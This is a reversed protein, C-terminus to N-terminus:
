DWWVLGVFNGKDDIKKEGIFADLTEVDDHLNLWAFKEGSFLPSKVKGDWDCSQYGIKDGREDYIIGSFDPDKDYNQVLALGM